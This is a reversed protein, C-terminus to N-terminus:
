ATRSCASSRGAQVAYEEGLTGTFMIVPCDPFTEKIEGSLGIGQGWGLAYDVIALDPRSGRLADEFERRSGIEVIKAEPYERAIERRTLLRDDESDDVILIRM